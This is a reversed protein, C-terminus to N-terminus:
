DCGKKRQRQAYHMTFFSERMTSRLLPEFEHLVEVDDNM